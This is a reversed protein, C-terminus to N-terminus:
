RSTLSSSLYLRGYIKGVSCSVLRMENNTLTGTKDSFVHTVQGIEAILNGTRCDARKDTEAHYMLLDRGLLFKNM